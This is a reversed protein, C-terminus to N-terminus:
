TQRLSLQLLGGSIRPFYEANLLDANFVHVTGKM